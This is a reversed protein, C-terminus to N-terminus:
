VIVWSSNAPVTVTIGAGITIPGATVANKGATITYSNTVSQDNEYFV